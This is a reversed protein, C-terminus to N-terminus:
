PREGILKALQARIQAAVRAAGPVAERVWRDLEALDNRLKLLHTREADTLLRHGDEEIWRLRGRCHARTCAILEGTKPVRIPDECVPCTEDIHETEIM